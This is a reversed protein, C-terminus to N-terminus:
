QNHCANVGKAIGYGAAGGAAGAVISSGGVIAAVASAGLSAGATSGAASGPPGLVTGIEGGAAAGVVTGAFIFFTQWFMRGRLEKNENRAQNNAKQETNLQEKAIKLDGKLADICQKQSANSQLLQRALDNLFCTALYDKRYLLFISQLIKVLEDVKTDYYDQDENVVSELIIYHQGTTELLQHLIAPADNILIEFNRQQQEGHTPSGLM